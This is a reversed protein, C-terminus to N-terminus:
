KTGEVFFALRQVVVGYHLLIRFLRILGVEILANPPPGCVAPGCFRTHHLVQLLGGFPIRSSSDHSAAERGRRRRPGPNRQQSRHASRPFPLDPSAPNRIRGRVPCSSQPARSMVQLKVNSTSASVRFLRSCSCLEVATTQMRYCCCCCCCHVRTHTRAPSIATPTATMPLQALGIPPCCNNTADRNSPHM